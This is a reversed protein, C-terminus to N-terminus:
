ASDNEECQCMRGDLELERQPLLYNSKMSPFDFTQIIKLVFLSCITCNSHRPSQFGTDCVNKHSVRKRM